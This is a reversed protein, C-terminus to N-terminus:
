AYNQNRRDRAMRRAKHVSNEEAFRQQSVVLDIWNQLTIFLPDRLVVNLAVSTISNCCRGARALLLPTQTKEEVFYQNM